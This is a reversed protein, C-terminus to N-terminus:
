VTCLVYMCVYRSVRVVYVYRGDRSHFLAFCLPSPNEWIDNETTKRDRMDGLVHIRKVFVCM